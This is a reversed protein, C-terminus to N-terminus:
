FYSPDSCNQERYEQIWDAGMNTAPVQWPRLELVVADDEASISAIVYNKYESYALLDAESDFAKRCDDVVIFCVVKKRVIKASIQM